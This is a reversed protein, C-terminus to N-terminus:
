KGNRGMEWTGIWVGTHPQPQHDTTMRLGVMQHNTGIIRFHKCLCLYRFWGTQRNRRKCYVPLRGFVEGHYWFFFFFFFDVCLPPHKHELNLIRHASVSVASRKLNSGMIIDRGGSRNMSKTIEGTNSSDSIREQQGTVEVM